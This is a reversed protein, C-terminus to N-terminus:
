EFQSAISRGGAMRWIAYGPIAWGLGFSNTTRDRFTEGGSRGKGATPDQGGLGGLAAMQLRDRMSSFDSFQPMGLQAGKGGILNGLKELGTSFANLVPVFQRGIIAHLRDAQYSLQEMSQPSAKGAGQIGYAVAAAAGGM